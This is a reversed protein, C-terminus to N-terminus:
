TTDAMSWIQLWREMWQKETLLFCYTEDTGRTLREVAWTSTGIDLRAGRPGIWLSTGAGNVTAFHATVHSKLISDSTREGYPRARGRWGATSGRVQETDCLSTSLGTRDARCRLGHIASSGKNRRGSLGFSGVRQGRELAPNRSRSGGSAGLRSWIRTRCRAGSDAASTHRARRRCSGPAAGGVAGSGSGRPASFESPGGTSRTQTSCGRPRPPQSWEAIPNGGPGAARCERWPVLHRQPWRDGWPPWVPCSGRGPRPPPRASRRPRLARPADILFRVRRKAGSERAANGRCSRWVRPDKSAATNWAMHGVAPAPSAGDPACLSRTWSTLDNQSAASARSVHCAAARAATSRRDTRINCGSVRGSASLPRRPTRAARQFGNRGRRRWWRSM